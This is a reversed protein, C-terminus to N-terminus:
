QSRQPLCAALVDPGDATLAHMSPCEPCGAVFGCEGLGIASLQVEGHEQLFRQLCAPVLVKTLPGHLSNQM